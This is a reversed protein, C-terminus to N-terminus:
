IHRRRIYWIVIYYGIIPSIGYGMFPIPFNGFITSIMILSYYLGICISLRRFEKPPFLIFPLPILILTIIGMVLLIPSVNNLLGLIGEVYSVPSLNDVFIWSLIMLLILLLSIVNRLISNINIKKDFLIIIVPISFGMLQSADPQQVLLMAISVIIILAYLIKRKILLNYSAVLTIPLVIMAINMSIIGLKIWRNVGDIDNGFLTLFLLILSIVMIIEDNIRVSKNIFVISMLGFIVMAVLNQLLISIPVDNGIMGLIGILIAPIIIGIKNFILDRKLTNM